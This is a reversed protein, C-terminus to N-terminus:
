LLAKSELYNNQNISLSLEENIVGKKPYYDVILHLRKQNSENHVSHARANNIEWIEGTKLNKTEGGVVFRVNENTFIPIHTRHVQMLSLGNDKHTPLTHNEPMEALIIRYLYGEGYEKEYLKQLEDEFKKFNLKDYWEQTPLPEIKKQTFSEYTWRISVTRVQAHVPVTNRKTKINWVEEPITKISEILDNITSLNGLLKFNFGLAEKRQRLPTNEKDFINRKRVM